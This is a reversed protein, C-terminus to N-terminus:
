LLRSSLSPTISITNLVTIDDLIAGHGPNGTHGGEGDAKIFKSGIFSKTFLMMSM